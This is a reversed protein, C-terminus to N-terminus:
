GKQSSSHFSTTLVVSPNGDGPWAQMYKRSVASELNERHQHAPGYTQYARAGPAPPPGFEHLSEPALTAPTSPGATPLATAEPAAHTPEQVARSPNLIAALSMPKEQQSPGPGAEASGTVDTDALPRPLPETLVSELATPPVNNKKPDTASEFTRAMAM